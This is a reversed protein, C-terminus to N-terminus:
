NRGAGGRGRGRRQQAAATSGAACADRELSWALRVACVARAVRVRLECSGVAREAEVTKLDRAAARQERETEREAERRSESSDLLCVYAGRCVVPVPRVPCWLVAPPQVACADNSARLLRYIVPAPRQSAPRRTYTIPTMQAHATRTSHTRVRRRPCRPLMHLYLYASMFARGLAPYSHFALCSVRRAACSCAYLVRRRRRRAVHGLTSRTRSHTRRLGAQM